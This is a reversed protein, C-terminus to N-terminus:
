SRGARFFTEKPSEGFLLRYSAAFRGFHTIGLDMAVKTVTLGNARATALQRRAENLRLARIFELPSVAFTTRFAYELQRRSVGVERCLRIIPMDERIHAHVFDEAASAQRLHRRASRDIGPDRDDAVARAEALSGLYEVFAVPPDEMQVGASAATAFRDALLEIQGRITRAYNPTLRVASPHDAAQEVIVGTAGAQIEAWKAAPVVAGAYSLGPQVSATVTTGAPITVIMHDELPIGCITSDCAREVALIVVSGRDLEGSARLACNFEALDIAWKGHSQIQRIRSPLGGASLRDVKVLM